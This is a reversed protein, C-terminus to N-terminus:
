DTYEYGKPRSGCEGADATEFLASMAREVTIM